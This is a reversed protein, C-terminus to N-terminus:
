TNQIKRRTFLIDFIVRRKSIFYDEVFHTAFFALSFSCITYIVFGLWSFGFYYVIPIVLVNHWLYLNYSYYALVTYAKHFKIEMLCIFAVSLALPSICRLLLGNVSQDFAIILVLSIVALIAAIMKKQKSIMSYRNQFLYLLGGFCFADLRNHTYTPYEAVLTFMAQIKAAQSLVIIALMLWPIRTRFKRRSAWLVSVFLMIFYFHEEVCITWLHEFSWRPPLGGYNRYFFVYQKWESLVPINEGYIEELFLSGVLFAVIVFFFYSPLIKTIRKVLYKKNIHLSDDEYLFQTILFGSLVFFADIDISLTDVIEFHTILVSLAAISRVFDFASIRDEQDIIHNLRNFSM